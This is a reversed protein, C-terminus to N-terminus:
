IGEPIPHDALVAATLVESGYGFVLCERYDMWVQAQPRDTLRGASNSHLSNAGDIGWAPSRMKRKGPLTAHAAPQRVSLGGKNLKASRHALGKM